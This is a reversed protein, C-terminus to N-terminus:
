ADYYQEYYEETRALNLWQRWKLLEYYKDEALILHGGVLAALKDKTCRINGLIRMTAANSQRLFTLGWSTILIM